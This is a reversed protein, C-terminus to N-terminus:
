LVESVVFFSGTILILDDVSAAEKAAALALTPHVYKEGYLQHENAM